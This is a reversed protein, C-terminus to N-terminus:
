RLSVRAILRARSIANSDKGPLRLLRKSPTRDPGWRRRGRTEEARSPPNTRRDPTRWGGGSRIKPHEPAEASRRSTCQHGTGSRKTAPHAAIAQHTGHEEEPRWPSRTNAHTVQQDRNGRDRDLDPQTPRPCRAGPRSRLEQHRRTTDHRPAANQGVNRPHGFGVEDCARHAPACRAQSSAPRPPPPSSRRGARHAVNGRQRVGEHRGHVHQRTRQPQPGAQRQRPQWPAALRRGRYVDSSHQRHPEHHLARTPTAGLRALPPKLRKTCRDRTTNTCPSAIMRKEGRAGTPM